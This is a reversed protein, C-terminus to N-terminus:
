SFWFLILYSASPDQPMTEKNLTALSVFLLNLENKNLFYVKKHFLNVFYFDKWICIHLFYQKVLRTM